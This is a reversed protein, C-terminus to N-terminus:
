MHEQGWAASLLPASHVLFRARWGDCQGQGGSEVMHRLSFSLLDRRGSFCSSIDSDQNAPLVAQPSQGTVQETPLMYLLDRSELSWADRRAPCPRGSAPGHPRSSARCYLAPCAVRITGAPLATGRAKSLLRWGLGVGAQHPSPSSPCPKRVPHALWSSLCVGKKM